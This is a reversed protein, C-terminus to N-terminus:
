RDKMVEKPLPAGPSPFTVHYVTDNVHGLCLVPADVFERIHNDMEFSLELVYCVRQKGKGHFFGKVGIEAKIANRFRQRLGSLTQSVGLPGLVVAYNSLSYFTVLFFISIKFNLNKCIMRIGAPDPICNYLACVTLFYDELTLGSYVGHKNWEHIWFRISGARGGKSNVMDPWIGLLTDM